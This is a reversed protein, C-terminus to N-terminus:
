RPRATYTGCPRVAPAVARGARAHAGRRRVLTPQRARGGLAVRPRPALFVAHGPHRMPPVAGDGVPLAASRAPGRAGRHRVRGGRAAPVVGVRVHRNVAGGDRADVRGRGPRAAPRARATPRAAGPPFRRRGEAPRDFGLHLHCLRRGPDPDADWRGRPHRRASSGFRGASGGLDGVAPRRGHHRGSVDGPDSPQGAAGPLARPAAALLGVVASAYDDAMLTILGGPPVADQIRESVIGAREAIESYSYYRDSWVAHASPTESSQDAFEDWFTLM